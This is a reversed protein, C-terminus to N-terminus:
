EEPQTKKLMRAIARALRRQKAQDRSLSGGFAALDLHGPADADALDRLFRRPVSCVSISTTSAASVSRAFSRASASVAVSGSRM